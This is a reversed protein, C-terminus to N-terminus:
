QLVKGLRRLILDTVISRAPTSEDAVLHAILLQRHLDPSTVPIATFVLPLQAAAVLTM